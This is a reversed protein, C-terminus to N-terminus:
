PFKSVTHATFDSWDQIDLYNRLPERPSDNIVKDRKETWTFTQYMSGGGEGGTQSRTRNNLISILKPNGKLVQELPEDGVSPDNDVLQEVSDTYGVNGFRGAFHSGSSLSTDNDIRFGVRCKGVAKVQYWYSGLFQTLTLPFVGFRASDMILSALAQEGNFQYEALNM